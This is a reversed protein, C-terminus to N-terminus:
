GRPEIMQEAHPETEPAALREIGADDTAVVQHHVQRLIALGADGIQVAAELIEREITSAATMAM